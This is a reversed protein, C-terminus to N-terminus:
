HPILFFIQYSLLCDAPYVPFFVGHFCSLCDNRGTGFSPRFPLDCKRIRTPSSTVLSTKRTSASIRFFLRFIMMPHSTSLHNRLFFSYVIRFLSRKWALQNIKSTIFYIKANSILMRLKGSADHLIKKKITSATLKL